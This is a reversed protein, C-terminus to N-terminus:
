PTEDISIYQAAGSRRKAWNVYREARLALSNAQWMSIVDATAADAVPDSSMTISAERSVDVTVGGDDALLIDAANVLIVLSNGGISAHQSVVVPIGQLTGGMMSLTPFEPQGLANFMLSWQLAVTSPMILVASEPTNNATLFAELLDGIAARVSDADTITAAVPSVGNLISAPSVNAVAAKAPDIFDIDMRAVIARGLEDRVLAEASPSSFRALEDTIVSIAAIKTFGVTVPAVDFKTVPKPVGQGVWNASAGSTQGIIRVNFPVRTLGPIRGVITKPRLYEIFESALNNAYVLPGAWTADTTTGAAVAAKLMVPIRPDHPYRAKAIDLATMAGGSILAAMKCIVGRAFGIGPPTPDTVEIRPLAGGRSKHAIDLSSGGVPTALMASGQEMVELRKLRVGITEVEGTLGDAETQQEETLTLGDETEMKLLEGMRAHKTQLQTRLATIQDSVTMTTTRATVGAAGPRISPIGAAPGLAARQATDLSKILLISADTNAPLTVCSTELWEWTTVHLGGGKRFSSTIPKLGISFGRVLGGKILRWADEITDTVGKAIQARIHIGTSAVRAELVHGIPQGQAHQWLLPMPLSFVAGTPEIIDGVRDPTPTTAIGELIRQEDDVGKTVLWEITSYAWHM